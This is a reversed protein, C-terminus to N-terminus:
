GARGYGCVGLFGNTAFLIITLVCSEELSISALYSPGTACRGGPRRPSCQAPTGACRQASQQRRARLHCPSRRDPTALGTDLSASHGPHRQPNRRPGPSFITFLYGFEGDTGRSICFGIELLQQSTKETLAKRDGLDLSPQPKPEHQHAPVAGPCDARTLEWNAPTAFREAGTVGDTRNPQGRRVPSEARAPMRQGSCGRKHLGACTRQLSEVGAPWLAPWRIGRSGVWGWVFAIPAM